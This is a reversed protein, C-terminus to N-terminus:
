YWVIVLDTKLNLCQQAGQMNGSLGLSIAAQTQM